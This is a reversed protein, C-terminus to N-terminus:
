FRNRDVKAENFFLTIDIKYHSKSPIKESILKTILKDDMSLNKALEGDGLDRGCFRPDFILDILLKEVNSLDMSRRSIDGKKTYFVSQPIHFQIHMGVSSFKKKAFALRFREIDRQIHHDLLQFLIDNGWERCEKTRTFSKKYYAKNVSFPPANLSFHIQM